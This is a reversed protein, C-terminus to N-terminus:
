PATQLYRVLHEQEVQLQDIRNKVLDGISVIAALRGDSLVPMHRVRLETMAAAIVALDDDFGCTHVDGTMIASIPQTLTGTGFRHLARVIDREGAIGVVQGEDDVIVVAGINRSSLLGVLHAVDEDPRATVVESGKHNIVDTIRM